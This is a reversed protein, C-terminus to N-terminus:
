SMSGPVAMLSSLPARPSPAAEVVLLDNGPSFTLALAEIGTFTVSSTIPPLVNAITGAWSAGGPEATISATVGFLAAYNITLLDFGAGGAVLDLGLLPAFSDAGITGSLTDNGSTGTLNTM